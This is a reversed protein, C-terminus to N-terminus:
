AAESGPYLPSPLQPYARLIHRFVDAAKATVDIEEYIEVPLGTSDSWLFDHITLRVADRTAEKERWREIKLKESKLTSLLEVSVQKIKKIDEKGLDPKKLLDFIALSEQELRENLTGRPGFTETKFAYVSEWDLEQELNDATTQQVLTDENLPM